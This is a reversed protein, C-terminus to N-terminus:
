QVTVKVTAAKEQGKADTITLTYFTTKKPNLHVCRSLSPWVAAEPPALQVKQANSVSYCLTTMQGSKISDPIAYFNLIDFRDGGMLEAARADEQRKQAERAAVRQEYDRNVQWRSYFIWGVFLLAAIALTSTYLFPNRLISRNQKEPAAFM